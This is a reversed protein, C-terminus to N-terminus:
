RIRKSDNVGEVKYILNFKLKFHKSCFNEVKRMIPRHIRDVIKVSLNLAEHRENDTFSGYGSISDDHILLSGLADPYQLIFISFRVRIYGARKGKYFMEYQEPCESCSKVMTYIRNM